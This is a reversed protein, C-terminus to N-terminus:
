IQKMSHYNPLLTIKIRFYNASKFSTRNIVEFKLLGTNFNPVVLTLLLPMDQETPKIYNGAYSILHM